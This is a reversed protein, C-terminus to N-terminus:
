DTNFIRLLLSDLLFLMICGVFYCIIDVFSFTRGVLVSLFRNSELSLIGVIDILQTLEVLLVFIFVYISLGKIKEPEIIRILCGILMTVLVDGFYPRFFKDRVRLAIYVEIAFLAFFFFM